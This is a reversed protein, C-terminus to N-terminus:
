AERPLWEGQPNPHASTVQCDQRVRDECYRPWEFLVRGGNDLVIDGVEIARRLQLKAKLRMRLLWEKYAEGHVSANVRHWACWYKCPISLLLDVKSGFSKAVNKAAEFGASTDVDCSQETIRITRTARSEAAACVASQEDCMWEILVRENLQVGEVTTAVAAPVVPIKDGPKIAKAKSKSSSSNSGGQEEDEEKQLKAKEEAALTETMRLAAEFDETEMKM